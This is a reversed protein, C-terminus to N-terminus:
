LYRKLTMEVEKAYGGGFLNVHVLLPYLNCLEMRQEWGKEMPFAENYSRYFAPPFGGFLRTMALDMERHGYYVAPDYMCPNRDADTMFNGSWLDGHLLAPKEQPFLQDMKGFLREFSTLISRSIKRQDYAPQLQKLLREHIFFEPWSAHFSNTQKLSGIYNDHGLGFHENSRRHMQALLRGFEEFSRDTNIGPMLYELVLFAQEDALGNIIVTPIKIESNKALLELGKCEAEFMGPFKGANNLKMFYDSGGASIKYAENISGGSLSSAATIKAPKSFHLTLAQEIQSVLSVDM